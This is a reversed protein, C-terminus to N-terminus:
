FLLITNLKFSSADLSAHWPNNLEQILTPLSSVVPETIYLTHFSVAVFTQMMISVLFVFIKFLLKTSDACLFVSTALHQWKGERWVAYSQADRIIALRSFYVLCSGHHWNHIYGPSSLM